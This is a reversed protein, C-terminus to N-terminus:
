KCLRKLKAILRDFFTSKYMKNFVFKDALEDIILSEPHIIETLDELEQEACSSEINATNTGSGFGINSILNKNPIISIGNHCFLTYSWQFDWTNFISSNTYIKELIDLWVKQVRKEVFVDKILRQEKFQSFDGMDVDYYKWARRWSAWGWIHAYQSFYYSGDGRKKGVQFNAGSIHMIREDDRYYELMEACFRFFDQNPLCDDELIIGEEVNDFFWDIASSVAIRCGLNSKRFLTKVECDWDVNDMVFQRVGACIETEGDCDARAGDSAVFLQRPQAERIAEFVRQTTALRNFVLFLVPTNLQTRTM